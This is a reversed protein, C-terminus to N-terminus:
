TTKIGARRLDPAIKQDWCEPCVAHSLQVATNKALYDEVCQWYHKDNRIKKCYCCIPLLGQLAKVQALAAELDNIRATLQAQLEVVTRGVQVRARLEDPNFPKTIYDNAGAQLGAVVDVKADRSTLLLVYVPTLTPTQRLRRCIETGDLGPMMWDLIALKPYGKELLRWAETGDSVSVVNYASETLARELLTRSVPDDDAILIKM